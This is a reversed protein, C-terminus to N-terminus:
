GGGCCNLRSSWWIPPPTPTVCNHRTRKETRCKTEHKRDESERQKMAM